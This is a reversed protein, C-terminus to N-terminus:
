GMREVYDAMRRKATRLEAPPTQSTKKTFAHLLVLRGGTAAFYLVRHQVQGRIRLEWLKGGVSRVHPMGLALGFIELLDIGSTVRAGESATLGTLYERVPCHGAPTTYLTVSWRAM